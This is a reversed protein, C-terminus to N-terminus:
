LSSSFSRTEREESASTLSAVLRHAERPQVQTRTIAAVRVFSVWIGLVLSPADDFAVLTDDFAVSTDDFAISTDDFAVSTDDFPLSTLKRSSSTSPFSAICHPFVSIATSFYVFDNSRMGLSFYIVEVMYIYINIIIKQNIYKYHYLTVKM